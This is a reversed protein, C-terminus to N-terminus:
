EHMAKDQNVRLWHQLPRGLMRELELVDGRVLAVIAAKEGASLEPYAPRFFLQEMVRRVQLLDKLRDAVAMGAWKKIWLYPGRAIWTYLRSYIRRAKESKPQVGQRANRKGAAVLHTSEFTDIGLFQALEDLTAQRRETVDEHCRIFFQDVPFEAFWRKLHKAYLAPELLLDPYQEIAELVSPRTVLPVAQHFNQRLLHWYHSQIQSVPDRLIAVIRTHPIVTKAHLHARPSAMYRVSFDCRILEDGCGSFYAPYEDFRDAFNEYHLANLEKRTPMFVQPHADLVNSLWTTASKPAGIGLLNPLHKDPDSTARQALEALRPDVDMSM